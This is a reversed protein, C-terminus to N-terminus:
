LENVSLPHQFLLVEKTGQTNGLGIINKLRHCVNVGEVKEYYLKKQSCVFRLSALSLKTTLYFRNCAMYSYKM